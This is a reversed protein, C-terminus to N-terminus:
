FKYQLKCVADIRLLYPTFRTTLQAFRVIDITTKVADCMREDRLLGALVPINFKQRTSLVWLIPYFYMRTAIQTKNDPQMLLALM